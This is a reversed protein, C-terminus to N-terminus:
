IHFCIDAEQIEERLKSIARKKDCFTYYTIKQFNRVDIHLSNKNSGEDRCDLFLCGEEINREQNMPYDQMCIVYQTHEM